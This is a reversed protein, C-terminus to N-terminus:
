LLGPYSVAGNEVKAFDTLLHPSAASTSIIDAIDVGRAVLADATLQRHCRWPVAEACMIAARRGDTAAAYALLDDIARRFEASQMHDAYWRFHENRWATNISDARPKRMGGLGPFHRYEIGAAALSAELAAAGFHPHRRSQPMSRIDALADIKHAKLLGLFEDISRTSHGITWIM